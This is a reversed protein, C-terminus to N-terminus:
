AVSVLKAVSAPVLLTRPNLEFLREDRDLSQVVIGWSGRQVGTSRTLALIESQLSPSAQATFSRAAATPPAPAVPPATRVCALLSASLLIGFAALARPRLRLDANPM